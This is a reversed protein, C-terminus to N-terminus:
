SIQTTLSPQGGSVFTQSVKTMVSSQKSVTFISSVKRSLSTIIRGVTVFLWKLIPPMDAFQIM